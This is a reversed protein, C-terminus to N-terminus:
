TQMVAILEGLFDSDHALPTTTSTASRKGISRKATSTAADPSSALEEYKNQNGYNIVGDSVDSKEEGGGGGDLVSGGAVTPTSAGVGASSAVKEIGVATTPQLTAAVLFLFGLVLMMTASKGSSTSSSSSSPRISNRERSGSVVVATKGQRSNRNENM